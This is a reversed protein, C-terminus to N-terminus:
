RQNVIKMSLKPLASFKKKSRHLFEPREPYMRYLLGINKAANFDRIARTKNIMKKIDLQYKPFHDNLDHFPLLFIKLLLSFPSLHHNYM